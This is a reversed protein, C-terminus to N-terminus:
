LNYSNLNLCHLKETTDEFKSMESVNLHIQVHRKFCIDIRAQLIEILETWSWPQQQLVNWDSKWLDWLHFRVADFVVHYVFRPSITFPKM